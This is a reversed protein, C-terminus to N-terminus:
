TASTTSPPTPRRPRRSRPSPSSTTTPCAESDIASRPSRSTSAGAPAQDPPPPRPPHRRVQARAGAVVDVALLGQSIYYRVTRATVGALDALETLTYRADEPDTPSMLSVICYSTTSDLSDSLGFHVPEGWWIVPRVQPLVTAEASQRAPLCTSPGDVGSQSAVRILGVSRHTQPRSPSRRGIRGSREVPPTAMLNSSTRSTCRAQRLAVGIGGRTGRCRRSRRAPHCRGSSCEM